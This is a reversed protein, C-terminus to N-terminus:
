LLAFDIATISNVDYFMNSSFGNNRVDKQLLLQLPDKSLATLTQAKLMYGFYIRSM